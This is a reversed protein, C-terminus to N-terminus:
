SRESRADLSKARHSGSGNRTYETVSGYRQEVDVYAILAPLSDPLEAFRSESRALAAEAEKRHTVDILFGRLVAPEGNEMEVSVIDSIWVTTGDARIMRYEFEYDNGERSLRECTSVAADRDDPYVRDVWFTDGYWDEVPYGLLDAAQPGVYNFLWTRADAEWPVLPTSELLIRYRDETTDISTKGSM